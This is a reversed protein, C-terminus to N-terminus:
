GTRTGPIPTRHHQNTVYPEFYVSRVTPDEALKPDNLARRKLEDMIFALQFPLPNEPLFTGDNDFV